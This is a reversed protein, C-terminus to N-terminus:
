LAGIFKGMLEAQCDLMHRGYHTPLGRDEAAALWRTREPVMIIDCILTGADVNDLDLPLPDEPKLGLSTTNIVIDTNSGDHSSVARTRANPDIPALAAVLAEAKSMTRNHIQLSVIDVACLAAAIARAAGGAGLLLIRKGACEHGQQRLGEVFGVGDFNDGYVRGDPDFRVANVAGSIRAAVGLEDCIEAMALKHPITVALGGFNEQARLGDIVGRLNEPRANVPVMVHDLHRDAFLANFVMPARVHDAPHAIVGFIRSRGTIWPMKETM